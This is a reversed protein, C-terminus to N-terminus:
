EASYLSTFGVIVSMEEMVERIDEIDNATNYISDYKLIFTGYIDQYQKYSYGNGTSSSAFAGVLAFTSAANEARVMAEELFLAYQFLVFDALIEDAETHQPIYHIEDALEVITSNNRIFKHIESVKVSGLNNGYEQYLSSEIKDAVENIYNENSLKKMIKTCSKYTDYSVGNIKGGSGFALFVIALAVIIAVLSIGLKTKKNQPKVEVADVHEQTFVSNVNNSSEEKVEESETQLTEDLKTGCVGCFKMNEEFDNGCKNCKM